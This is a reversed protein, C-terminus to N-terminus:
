WTKRRQGLGYFYAILDAEEDTYYDEGMYDAVYEQVTMTGKRGDQFIESYMKYENDTPNGLMDKIEKKIDYEKLINQWTMKRVRDRM